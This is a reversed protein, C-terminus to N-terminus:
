RSARITARVTAAGFSASNTSEDGSARRASAVNLLAVPLFIVWMSDFKGLYPNTFTGILFSFWGVLVPAAYARILPDMRSVSVVRLASGLIGGAYLVLGILGADFLLAFYTLEYAWPTAISRISGVAVAGLGAGLLPHDGFGALLAHTQQQRALADGSISPNFGSLFDAFLQVWQIDLVMSAVSIILGMTILPMVLQYARKGPTTRSRVLSSAMLVLIPTIALSVFLAKRASLLVLSADLVIALYIWRRGIPLPEGRPWTIALTILFPLVFLLTSLSTLNLTAFGFDGQYIQGQDIQVFYLSAPLRGSQTLAYLCGYAGIAVGSIVLTRTLDALHKGRYIASVLLLYVLPWAVFVTMSPLAGPNNNIVGRLAFFCGLAAYLALPLAIRPRVKIGCGTRGWALTIVLLVVALLLMKPLRYTTPVFLMLFFLVYGMRRFWSARGEDTPLVPAVKTTM